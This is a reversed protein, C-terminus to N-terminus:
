KAAALAFSMGNAEFRLVSEFTDSNFDSSPGKEEGWRFKSASSFDVSLMLGPGGIEICDSDVFDVGGAFGDSEIWSSEIRVSVIAETEAWGRLILLAEEKSSEMNM